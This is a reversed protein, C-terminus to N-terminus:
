EDELEKWLKEIPIGEGRLAQRLGERIGDRLEDLTMDGDMLATEDNLIEGPPTLDEAVDAWITNFLEEFEADNTEPDSPVVM